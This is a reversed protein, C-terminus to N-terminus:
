SRVLSLRRRKGPSGPGRSGQGNPLAGKPTQEAKKPLPLGYGRKIAEKLAMEAFLLKKYEILSVIIIGPSKLTSINRELGIHRNLLIHLPTGQLGELALDFEKKLRLCLNKM